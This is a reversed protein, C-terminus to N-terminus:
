PRPVSIAIRDIAHALSERTTWQLCLKSLIVILGDFITAIVVAWFVGALILGVNNYSIAFKFVRGIGSSSGLYEAVIVVGLNLASTIRLAGFLEPLLAPLEIKWMKQLKNSGCIDALHLYNRPINQLGNATHISISFFSYVAPIAIIAAATPGFIALAFPAFILPPVVRFVEIVSDYLVKTSSHQFCLVSLVVGAISGVVLSILMTLFTFGLQLSYGKAGGGQAAIIPDHFFSTGIVKLLAPLHPLKDPGALFSIAEWTGVALVLFLILSKLNRFM